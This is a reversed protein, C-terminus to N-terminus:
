WSKGGVAVTAFDVLMAQTTETHLVLRSLVMNWSAHAVAWSTLAATEPALYKRRASHSSMVGKLVAGVSMSSIRKIRFAFRVWDFM